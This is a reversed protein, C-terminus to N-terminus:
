RQMHRVSFTRQDIEPEFTIRDYRLTTRHGPRTLDFMTFRTAVRTGEVDEIDYTRYYKALSGDEDYFDARDAVLDQKRVTFVVRGWVVPADPKPIAEIVWYPVGDVIPEETIAHTYDVVLSDARVVDDNTFDSGMWSQLMMSPPIKIVRDIAPVFQWAERGRKLFTVGREKKPEQVRMLANSAGETWGEMVLTRSWDPREIEMTIVAYSKGQRLLDDSRRIIEVATLSTSEDGWAGGGALVACLGLGMRLGRRTSPVGGGGTGSGMVEDSGIGDLHIDM